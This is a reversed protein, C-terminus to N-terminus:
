TKIETFEFWDTGTAVAAFASLAVLITTGRFPAKAPAAIILPDALM